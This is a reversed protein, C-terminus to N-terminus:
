RENEILTTVLGHEHDNLNQCLFCKTPILFFRHKPRGSETSQFYDLYRTIFTQYNLAYLQQFVTGFLPMTAINMHRYM